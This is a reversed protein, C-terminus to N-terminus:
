SIIGRVRERFYNLVATISALIRDRRNCNWNYISFSKNKLLRSRIWSIKMNIKMEKKHIDLERRKFIAGAFIENLFKTKKERFGEITLFITFLIAPIQFPNCIATFHFTHIFYRTLFIPCGTSSCNCELERMSQNCWWSGKWSLWRLQFKMEECLGLSCANHSSTRLYNTEKRYM